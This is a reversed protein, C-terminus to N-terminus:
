EQNSARRNTLWARLALVLYAALLVPLLNGSLLTLAFVVTYALDNPTRQDPDIGAMINFAVHELNLMTLAVLIIVLPLLGAVIMSFWGLGASCRLFVLLLAVRWTAVIGLFWANVAQARDLPMFREVPTAYLLAPLSCMSLFLLVNRFSWRRPRLPWILLWLLVALCLIYAISGLGAYQWWEARPHDWYRGIGVVWTVAFGWGLYAKWHEAIAPSTRRFALLRFQDALIQRLM